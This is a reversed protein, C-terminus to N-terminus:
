KLTEMFERVKKVCNDCVSNYFDPPIHIVNDIKDKEIDHVEKKCIECVIYSKTM